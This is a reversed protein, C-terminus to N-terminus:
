KLLQLETSIKNESGYWLILQALSRYLFLQAHTQVLSPKLINIVGMTKTYKSIKNSIDVEGQCSLSYSFYIFKNVRELIRNDTCVENPIPEKVQFAVIGTQATTIEM